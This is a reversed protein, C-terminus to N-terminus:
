KCWKMLFWNMHSEDKFILACDDGKSHFGWSNGFALILWVSIEQKLAFALSSHDWYILPHIIEPSLTRPNFSPIAKHVDISYVCTM